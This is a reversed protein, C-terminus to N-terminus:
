PFAIRGMPVMQGATHNGMLLLASEAEIAADLMAKWSEDADSEDVQINVDGAGIAQCHMMLEVTLLRCTSLRQPPHSWTFQCPSAVAAQLLVQQQALSFLLWQTHASGM